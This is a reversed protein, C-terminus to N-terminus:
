GSQLSHIWYPNTLLSCFTRFAELAEAHRFDDIIDIGRREDQPRDFSESLTKRLGITFRLGLPHVAPAAASGAM